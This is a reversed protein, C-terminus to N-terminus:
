IAVSRCIAFQCILAPVRRVTSMHSWLFLSIRSTAQLLWGTSGFNISVLCRVNQTAVPGATHVCM